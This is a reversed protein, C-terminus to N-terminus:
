RLPVLAAAIEERRDALWAPLRLETGLRDRPEDVAFGPGDTAIELLLGEPMRFYISRFYDRDLVPSVQAGLEVLRERWERQQEEDKARFAVHHTQGVGGRAWRGNAPFGFFTFASRPAVERGDYRAWFWHPMEPWDQNVTKKVIRLGLAAELFDGTREVDATIASVHHIGDLAMDPTIEPV